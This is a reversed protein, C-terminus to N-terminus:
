GVYNPFLRHIELLLGEPLQSKCVFGDAGHRQCEEPLSLGDLESFVIIRLNPFARRLARAAEIGNLRPMSLDLLALHPQHRAALQIANMGDSATAVVDFGGAFELYDCVSQLATPSDDAVLVRIPHKPPL